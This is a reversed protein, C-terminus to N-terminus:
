PIFKIHIDTKFTMRLFPTGPDKLVKRYFHFPTLDAVSGMPRWITKKQDAAINPGDTEFTVTLGMKWPKGAHIAMSLDM